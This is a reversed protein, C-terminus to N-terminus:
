ALREEADAEAMLEQRQREAAPRRFHRAAMAAGVMRDLVELGAPDLDAALVVAEDHHGLAQRTVDDDGMDRQEVAAVFPQPDLALRDERHLVMGLRAGTR